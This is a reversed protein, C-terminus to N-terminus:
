DNGRVIFPNRRLVGFNRPISHTIFSTDYINNLAEGRLECRM